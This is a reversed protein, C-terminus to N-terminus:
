EMEELTSLFGNVLVQVEDMEFEVDSVYDDIDEAPSFATINERLSDIATLVNAQAQIISM